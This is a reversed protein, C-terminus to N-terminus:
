VAGGLAYKQGFFGAIREDHSSVILTMDMEDSIRTLLTMVQTASDTDLSSTPEDALIIDPKQYLARAIAVRQAQGRSLKTVQRHALDAIGLKHLLEDARAKSQPAGQVFDGLVINQMVSLPKLLHLDQFIIGVTKRRWQDRATEPLSYIDCGAVTVTGEMYEALGSMTYLLTTKGSGSPGYLLCRAGKAIELDPVDLVYQTEYGARLNRIQLV